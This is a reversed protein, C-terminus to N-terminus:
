EGGEIEIYENGRRFLESYYTCTLCEKYFVRGSKQLECRPLGEGHVPSGCRPCIGVIYNVQRKGPEQEPHYDEKGWKKARVAPVFPNLRHKDILFKLAKEAKRDWQFLQLFTLVTGICKPDHSEIYLELDVGNWMIFNRRRLRRLM